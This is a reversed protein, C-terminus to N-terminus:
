TGSGYIVPDGPIVSPYVFDPAHKWVGPEAAQMGHIGWTLGGPSSARVLWLELITMEPVVIRDWDLTFAHEIVVAGILNPKGYAVLKAIQVNVDELPERGEHTARKMQVPFTRWFGGTPFRIVCDAIGDDKEPFAIGFPIKDESKNMWGYALLSGHLREFREKPVGPGLGSVIPQGGPGAVIPFDNVLVCHPCEWDLHQWERQSIVADFTAEDLEHIVGHERCPFKRTNLPGVERSEGRTDGLGEADDM